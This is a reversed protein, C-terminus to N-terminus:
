KTSQLFIKKAFYGGVGGLIAGITPIGISGVLVEGVVAMAIIFFIGGRKMRKSNPLHSKYQNRVRTLRQQINGLKGIISVADKLGNLLEERTEMVVREKGQYFEKNKKTDTPIKRKVAM